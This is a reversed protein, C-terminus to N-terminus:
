PRLWRQPNLKTGQDWIEFHLTNADDIGEKAVEAITQGSSVYENESVVVNSVRTYVTYYDEGHHIIITNGYGRLWTVTTVLGDMISQVTSGERVKIDIGTNETVTKLVPHQHRGFTSVINGQVPWPLEGQLAKFDNKDTINVSRLARQRELERQREAKEKQLRAIIDQLKKLSNEKDQILNSYLRTNKRIDTLRRERNRKLSRLDEKEGSLSAINRSIEENEAQILVQQEDIRKVLDRIKYFLEKETRNIANVYKLRYYFQKLGESSFLLELVDNNHLTYGNVVRKKYRDILAGKQTEMDSQERKLLATKSERLELEKEMARIKRDLLQIQRNSRDLEDLLSSEKSRSARIDEKLGEIEQELVEIQESQNRIKVDYEEIGTAGALIAASALIFATLRISNM